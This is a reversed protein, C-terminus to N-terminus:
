CSYHATGPREFGGAPLKFQFYADGGNVPRVSIPSSALQENLNRLQEDNKKNIVQMEERSPKKIAPAKLSDAVQFLFLM